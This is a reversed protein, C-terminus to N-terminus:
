KRVQPEKLTGGVNLTARLTQAQTKVDAVIRGNLAGTPAIDLSAGANLAGAAITLNRLQVTGQDYLGQANLEAFLTRGATQNGSTQIARALDISGLVGREIKIVGELRAGPGLRAIEAGSMSFTGRGEARGESVLTPAFVAVNVSRIRVSGDVTWADGWRIDAAGSITGEFARGDFSALTMGQRNATGKAGFEALTLGPVFPVAFSGANLEFAVQGDKPTMDLSFGDAGTARVSRVSGDPALAVEADLPPLALPGDIRAQKLVVREIRLPGGKTKAALLEALRAQQLRVGELEVRSFKKDGGFLSGFDTEGRVAAIRVDGASVRELHVQAGQLVSMRGSAIRVPVGLAQSAAREYDATDLPMLHVAALGGAVALLLGIGLYKGWNVPKRRRVPKAAEAAARAEEQERERERKLERERERRREKERKRAEKDSVKREPEAEEGMDIEETRVVVDEGEVPGKMRQEQQKAELLERAKRKREEAQRKAEEEIERQRRAEEEKARQAEQEKRRREEEKRRQSEEEELKRKREAEKTRARAQERSKREEEERAKRDQEERASFAALDALFAEAGVAEAAAKAKADAEERAKREAEQKARRAEEEAARRKAEAEERRRRDEEERARREKEQREREAQEEAEREAKEEAERRAKEEAERRAKEEAERRAKEEAERKAKAEAERRAKEEAERRAKEEAERRAKEEAERRAKEEAERRAKEEAERRAKEEAERKAKAEAERRAKEEAERRAREAAEARARAEAEAKAKAEAEARAKAEAEAKAKAAAEAKARSESELAARMRAEAEADARAQADQRARVERMQQENALRQAEARATAALDVQQPQRAPIKLVQTFDLEDGIDAAPSPAPEAAKGPPAPKGPAAPAASKAPTAPAAPKAPPPAPRVPAAQQAGTTVERIYGDKDLQTILVAFKGEPIKEFKAQVEGLTTRGDIAALVARDARSLNSTKGAAEQVGKGTKSFIASPNM